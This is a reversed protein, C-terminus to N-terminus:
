VIHSLDKVYVDGAELFASGGPFVWGGVAYSFFCDSKVRLTRLARLALM